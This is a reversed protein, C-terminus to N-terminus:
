PTSPDGTTRQWMQWQQNFSQAKEVLDNLTMSALTVGVLKDNLGQPLAQRFAYM